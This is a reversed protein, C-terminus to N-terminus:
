ATSDLTEVLNKLCWGDCDESYCETRAMVSLNLLMALMWRHHGDSISVGDYDDHIVTIPFRQVISAADRIFSEDYIVFGDTNEHDCLIDALKKDWMEDQSEYCHEDGYAIVNWLDNPNLREPM